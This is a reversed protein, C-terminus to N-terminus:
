IAPGTERQQQPDDMVAMTAPDILIRALGRPNDDSRSVRFRVAASQHGVPADYQQPAADGTVAARANAIVNDINVTTTDTDAGITAPFPHVIMLAIGTVGLVAAPIGIIVGIWLHVTGFLRRLTGTSFSSRAVTDTM